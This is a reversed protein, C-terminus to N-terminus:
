DFRVTAPRGVPCGHLRVEAREDPDLDILVTLQQRNQRDAVPITRSPDLSIGSDRLARVYGHMPRDQDYVRITVPSGARPSGFWGTAVNAEIYLGGCDLVDALPNGRLVQTGASVYVSAIQGGAGAPVVIDRFSALRATEADLQSRLSAIEGDTNGLQHRLEIERVRIEDLRQQHYTSGGFGNQLYVGAREAKLQAVASDRDAAARGLAAEAGLRVAIADDLRSKPATGSALLLRARGEQGRANVLGGAAGLIAAESSRVGAALVVQQAAAYVTDRDRLQGALMELENVSAQVSAKRQIAASLHGILEIRPREDIRTDHVRFLVDTAAVSQGSVADAAEMVGDIPARLTILPANVVGELSVPTLVRRYAYTGVVAACVLLAVVRSIFGISFRGIGHRRVPPYRFAEIQGVTNDSM